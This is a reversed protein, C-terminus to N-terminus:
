QCSVCVRSEVTVAIARAGGPWWREGARGSRPSREALDQSVSFHFQFSVLIASLHRQTAPAPDPGCSGIPHNRGVSTTDYSHDASPVIMRVQIQRGPATAGPGQSVGLLLRPVTHSRDDVVGGKGQIPLRRRSGTNAGYTHKIGEPLKTVGNQVDGARCSLAGTAQAGQPVAELAPLTNLEEVGLARGDGGHQGLRTVQRGVGEHIRREHAQHVPMAHGRGQEVPVDVPGEGVVAFSDPGRHRRGHSADVAVVQGPVGTVDVAEVQRRRTHAGM